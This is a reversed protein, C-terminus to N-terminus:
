SQSITGEVVIQQWPPHLLLLLILHDARTGGKLFQKGKIIPGQFFVKHLHAVRKEARRRLVYISLQWRRRAVLSSFESGSVGGRLGPEGLFTSSTVMPTYGSLCTPCQSLSSTPRRRTPSSCRRSGSPRSWCPIPWTWPPLGPLPHTFFVQRLQSWLGRGLIAM